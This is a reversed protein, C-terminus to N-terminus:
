LVLCLFSCMKFLLKCNLDQTKHSFYSQTRKFFFFFSFTHGGSHHEYRLWSIVPDSQTNTVALLELTVRKNEVQEFGAVIGKRWTREAVSALSSLWTPSSNWKLHGDLITFYRWLNWTKLSAAPPPRRRQIWLTTCAWSRVTRQTRAGCTLAPGPATTPTTAAPSM